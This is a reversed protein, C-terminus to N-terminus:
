SFLTNSIKITPPPAVPSNNPKSNVFFPNFQQINSFSVIIEVAVRAIRSFATLM